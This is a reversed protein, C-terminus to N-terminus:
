SWAADDARRSRDSDWLPWPRPTLAFSSSPQMQPCLLRAERRDNIDTVLTAAAGPPAVTTLRGERDRLFGLLKGGATYSGVMEGRNNINTILTGFSGLVLGNDDSHPNDITAYTGDRTLV